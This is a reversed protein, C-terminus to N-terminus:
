FIKAKSFDNKEINNVLDISVQFVIDSIDSLIDANVDPILFTSDVHEGHLLKNRRYQAYVVLLQLYNIKCGEDCEKYLSDFSKLPKDKSKLARKPYNKEMITKINNLVNINRYKFKHYCLTRAVEEKYSVRKNMLWGLLLKNIEKKNNIYFQESLLISDKLVTEINELTLVAVIADIDKYKDGKGTFKNHFTYVFTYMSNFSRYANYFDNNKTFLVQSHLVRYLVDSVEKHSIMKFLYEINENVVFCDPLIAGFEQVFPIAIKDKFDDGIIISKIEIPQKYFNYVYFLSSVICRKFNSRKTKWCNNLDISKTRKCEISIKNKEFKVDDAYIQEKTEGNEKYVRKHYEFKIDKNLEKDNVNNVNYEIVISFKM